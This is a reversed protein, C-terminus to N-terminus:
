RLNPLMIKNIMKKLEAVKLEKGNIQRHLMSHCNPCVPILDKKYNIKYNSGIEHIPILHHIHIFDEGIEGYMEKFNLGCIQCNLGHYRIANERAKSSREYKNVLIRKQAGEYDLMDESIMDPFYDSQYNDTFYKEIYSLLDGEKIKVPGQPAAKLGNAKLNDLKMYNNSIQEVLRLTMYKGGKSKQYEEKDYWYEEDDRIQEFDLDIREVKCKYQLMMLPRTCYIYVTDGVEYKTNGQRWDIFGYHEFSSSHDYMKSNASIIWNM